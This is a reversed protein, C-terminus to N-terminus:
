HQLNPQYLLVWNGFILKGEPKIKSAKITSLQHLCAVLTCCLLKKIVKPFFYTSPGGFTKQGM